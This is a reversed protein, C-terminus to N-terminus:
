HVDFLGFYIRWGGQTAAVSIQGKKDKGNDYGSYWRVHGDEFLFNGGEFIGDSGAHSGYPVNGSAFWSNGASQLNDMFIPGNSYRGGMKERLVWNVVHPFDRNIRYNNNGRAVTLDNSFITKYGILGGSVAAQFNDGHVFRHFKDTPCFLLNERRKHSDKNLKLLYHPFFNRLMSGSVWEFDVSDKIHDKGMNPFYNENDLAYLQIAIGWQRMNSGCMSNEAKKKAKSLAPLLLSALIAIIAIVVLLEILTFAQRSVTKM